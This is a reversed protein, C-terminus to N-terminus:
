ILPAALILECVALAVLLALISIFLDKSKQTFSITHRMVSVEIEWDKERSM